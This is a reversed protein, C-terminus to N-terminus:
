KLVRLTSNGQLGEALAAGIEPGLRNGKLSHVSPPAPITLLTLAPM